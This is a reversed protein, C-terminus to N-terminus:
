DLFHPQLWASGGDSDDVRARVYGESGLHRYRPELGDAADLLRGDSGIFSTRYHRDSAQVIDVATEQSTQSLAELEPGTSAYCDGAALAELVHPEAASDALVHVWARGPNSRGHGWARFEHADDVAVAVMHRGLSLLGDWLQEASPRGGGGGQNNAGPGANFVEFLLTGRLPVIDRQRLAWRFNPHNISPMAGAERIAAVNAELTHAATSMIRPEVVRRIGLANMHIDGASVEEGHILEMSGRSKRHDGPLTLFDHDTLALFDYGSDRYWGVVIDPSSDGDSNTTHTHLNGKYWRRAM